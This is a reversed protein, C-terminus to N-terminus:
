CKLESWDKRAPKPFSIWQLGEEQEATLTGMRGNRELNETKRQNETRQFCYKDKKIYESGVSGSIQHKDNIKPLRWCNNLTDEKRHEGKRQKWISYKTGM